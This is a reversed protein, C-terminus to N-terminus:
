QLLLGIIPMMECILFPDSLSLIWGADCINFKKMHMQRHACMYVFMTM